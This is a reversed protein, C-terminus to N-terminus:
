FIYCSHHRIRQTKYSESTPMRNLAKKGFERLFEFNGNRTTVNLQPTVRPGISIM